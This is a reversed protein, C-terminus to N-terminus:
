ETVGGTPLDPIAEIEDESVLGPSDSNQLEELKTRAAVFAARPDDGALDLAKQLQDRAAENRDSAALALGYHVQVMADSPLGRAAPRLYRLAEDINGRRFQIWGYTDMYPPFDSERLRRAIRAARELSEEDDRATTLLSALNNAIVSTASNREYLDEYIEIAAEYDQQRELFTARMWLLDQAEPIANLGRELIQRAEDQRGAENLVRILEMWAREGGEGRDILRRYEQEATELDGTTSSLAALVFRLDANEPDKALLDDLYAQALEPRDQELYAAVIAIEASLSGAERDTLSELFDIVDTNRDQASLTQLRLQDAVLPALDGSMSRLAQEVQEARAWDELSVYVDGLTALLQIDSQALRLADILVSEAPLFRQEQMLYRAYALSEEVASNSTETALALMEGALDRDGNRLHARAMASYIEPDEPSQDQARRLALIAEDPLDAAILWGARLVLATVNSPDATLVREVLARAAVDNGERELIQAYSVMIDRSQDSDDAEDVLRQLEELAEDRAGTDYLLSARLAEFLQSNTGEEIMENAEELAREPGIAENLFRVLTIRGADNREGPAIQSRLFAEAGDLDGRSSYFQMLSEAISVDEAFISFMERLTREIGEDDDLRAYLSLKMQHFPRQRPTDNLADELEALAFDYDGEFAAQDIVVTRNITSDPQLAALETARAAADARGSTDDSLVAERYNLANDVIQARVSTPALSFAARGHEEAITENKSLLSLEALILRAEFDNPYQEVLRLYQSMAGAEDGQSLLTQALLARADRHRGNLSFVTRLEVIARPADGQELLAVANEYHQQAREEATDCAALVLMLALASATAFLRRPRGDTM